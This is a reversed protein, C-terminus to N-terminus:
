FCTVRPLTVESPHAINTRNRYVVNRSQPTDVALITPSAEPGDLEEFWGKCDLIQLEERTHCYIITSCIYSIM